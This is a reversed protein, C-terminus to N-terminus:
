EFVKRRQTIFACFRYQKLEKNTYVFNLFTYLLKFHFDICSIGNIQKIIDRFINKRHFNGNKRFFLVFSAMKVIILYFQIVTQYVVIVYAASFTFLLTSSVSLRKAARGSIKLGSFM